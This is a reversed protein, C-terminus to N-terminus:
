CITMSQTRLMAAKGNSNGSEILSSARRGRSGLSSRRESKGGKGERMAKNRRIVPTDALHLAIRTASHSEESTPVVETQHVDQTNEAPVVKVIQKVPEKPPRKPLEKPPLRETEQFQKM